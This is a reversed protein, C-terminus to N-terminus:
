SEDEIVEIDEEEVVPTELEAILSECHAIAGQLRNFTQMVKAAEQSLAEKQEELFKKTIEM